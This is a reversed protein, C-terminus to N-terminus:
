KVMAFGPTAEFRLGSQEAIWCCAAELASGFAVRPACYVTPALDESYLRAYSAANQFQGRSEDDVFSKSPAGVARLVDHSDLDVHFYRIEGSHPAQLVREGDVLLHAEILAGEVFM